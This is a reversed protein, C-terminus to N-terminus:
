SWAFSKCRNYYNTKQGCKPSEKCSCALESSHGNISTWFVCHECKINSKKTRDVTRMIMM